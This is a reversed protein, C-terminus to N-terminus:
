INIRTSLQDVENLTPGFFDHPRPVVGRKIKDRQRTIARERSKIQRKQPPEKKKHKKLKM